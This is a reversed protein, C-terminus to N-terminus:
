AASFKDLLILDAPNEAVAELAREGSEVVKVSYGLRALRRSLLERNEELDDVVLISGEQPISAATTHTEARALLLSSLPVPTGGTGTPTEGANTPGLALRGPPLRSAQEVVPATESLAAIGTRALEQTKRAATTIRWLDSKFADGKLKRSKRALTNAAGVIRVAGEGLKAQLAPLHARGAEISAADLPDNTQSIMQAALRQILELEPRLKEQGPEQVEDLLMESFGLIHGISNHLDHRARSVRLSLSPIVASLPSSGHAAPDNSM